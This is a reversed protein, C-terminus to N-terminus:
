SKDKKPLRIVANLSLPPVATIRLLFFDDLGAFLLLGTELGIWKNIHFCVNAEFGYGFGGSQGDSDGPTNFSGAYVLLNHGYEL